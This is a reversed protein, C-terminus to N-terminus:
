TSLFRCPLSSITNLLLAVFKSRSLRMRIRVHDRVPCIAGCSVRGVSHGLSAWRKHSPVFGPPWNRAVTAKAQLICHSWFTKLHLPFLSVPGHAPFSYPDVANDTIPSEHSPSVIVISVKCKTFTGLQSRLEHMPWGGLSGAKWIKSYGHVTPMSLECLQNASVIRTWWFFAIAPLDCM